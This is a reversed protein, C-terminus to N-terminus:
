PFRTIIKDPIIKFLWGILRWRRTIYAHQKRYKIAHYIQEAAKGSSAVWFMGQNEETMPTDVFGPKIDTVTINLKKRMVNKRIGLLFNSVFAKSANYAPVLSSGTLAAISSIGVIHGHKQNRFHEYAACAMATFGSVNVDITAKELKWELRPNTYGVGSNIVIIDMGNMERILGKLIDIAEEPKTLDMQRVFTPSALENQLEKLLEIRRATIGVTYGNQSLIKALSRGIGSSAGIIVAKKM